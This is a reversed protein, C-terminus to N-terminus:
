GIEKTGILSLQHEVEERLIKAIKRIELRLQEESGFVIPEDKIGLSITNFNKSLKFEMDIKQQEMKVELKCPIEFGEM